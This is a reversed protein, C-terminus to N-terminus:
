DYFIAKVSPNLLMYMYDVLFSVKEGLLEKIISKKPKVEYFNIEKLGSIQKLIGIAADEDGISDILGIKLADKACFVSGDAYQKLKEKNIHRSTSVTTLFADYIGNVVRQLMIKDEITPERFPNGVDKVKGSKVVFASVGVKNSLKSINVSEFLVGISGVISTPYAVIKRAGCAAYYAGSACVGKVLVVVPKEQNMDKIAIFLRESANASGGPSNIEIMVAKYERNKKVKKIQRIWTNTSEENIVGSIKILAANYPKKTYYYIFNIIFISLFLILFFKISRKVM